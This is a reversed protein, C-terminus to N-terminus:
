FRYIELKRLQVSFPSLLKIIRRLPADSWQRQDFRFACDLVTPASTTKRKLLSASPLPIKGETVIADSQRIKDGRRRL